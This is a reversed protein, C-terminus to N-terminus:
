LVGNVDTRSIYPGAVGFSWYLSADLAKAGYVFFISGFIVLLPLIVGAILTPIRKVEKEMCLFFLLVPVIILAYQKFGIAIGASLGALFYRKNKGCLTFFTALLLFLITFPETVVFYGQAWGLNVLFILSAIRMVLIASAMNCLAVLLLGGLFKEGALLPLTLTFFILPPKPDQYDLYPTAGDIIVKAMSFFQGTDYSAAQDDMFLSSAYTLSLIILTFLSLAIAFFTRDPLGAIPQLIREM